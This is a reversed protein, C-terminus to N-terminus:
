VERMLPLHAHACKNLIDTGQKPDRITSTRSRPDQQLDVGIPVVPASLSIGEVDTSEAALLLTANACARALSARRSHAGEPQAIAIAVGIKAALERGVTQM